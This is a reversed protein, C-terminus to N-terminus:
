RVASEPPSRRFEPLPTALGDLHEGIAQNIHKHFAMLIIKASIVLRMGDCRSFVIEKLIRHMLVTLEIQAAKGSISARGQFRIPIPRPIGQRKGVEKFLLDAFFCRNGTGTRPCERSSRDSDLPGITQHFGRFDRAEHNFFHTLSLTHRM